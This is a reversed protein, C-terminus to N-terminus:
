ETTSTKSVFTEQISNLVENMRDVTAIRFKRNIRKLKTGGKALMLKDTILGEATYRAENEENGYIYALRSITINVKGEKCDAVLMYNFKSRDLELFKDSFVLWESFTAAISHQEKNLLAIRSRETQNEGEALQEIKSYVLDYAQQASMGNTNIERSFVVEGDKEPVAGALYPKDADKITNTEKKAKKEKKTKTVTVAKKEKPAEWNSQAMSTLPLLMMLIALMNKKM